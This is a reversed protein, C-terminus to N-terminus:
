TRGVGNRLGLAVAEARTRTGLKRLIHHVHNRATLPSIFLSGAIERTGAGRILLGLVEVERRTLSSLPPPLPELTRARGLVIEEALRERARADSVDRLLHLVGLGDPLVVTSFNLWRQEGGRATVMLDRPAVPEGRQAMVFLPCRPCCVLNGSPDRGAFVEHCRRGAVERVSLGLAAEAGANWLVIRQAGDVVFAGEGAGRVLAGVWPPMERRTTGRAMSM